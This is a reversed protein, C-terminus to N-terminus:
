IALFDDLKTKSFPIFEIFKAIGDTKGIHEEEDVLNLPIELVLDDIPKLNEVQDFDYAFLIDCDPNEQDNHTIIPYFKPSNRAERIDDIM